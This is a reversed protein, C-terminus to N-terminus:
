SLIPTRASQPMLPPILPHQQKQCHRLGAHRPVACHVAAALQWVRYGRYGTIPSGVPQPSGPPAGRWCASARVGRREREGGKPLTSTVVSPEGLLPGVGV